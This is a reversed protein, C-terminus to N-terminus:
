ILRRPLSQRARLIPLNESQLYVNEAAARACLGPLSTMVRCKGDLDCGAVFVTKGDHSVAVGIFDGKGPPHQAACPALVVVYLNTDDTFVGCQTRLDSFPKGVPEFLGNTVANERDFVVFPKSWDYGVYAYEALRGDVM